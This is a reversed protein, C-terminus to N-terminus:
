SRSRVAYQLHIPGFLMVGVALALGHAIATAALTLWVKAGSSDISDIYDCDPPSCEALALVLTLKARIASRSRFRRAYADATRVLFPSRLGTRLLFSDFGTAGIGVEKHYLVYQRIVYGSPERGLLASGLVRAESELRQQENM